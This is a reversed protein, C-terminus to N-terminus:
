QRPAAGAKPWEQKAARVDFPLRRLLPQPSHLTSASVSMCRPESHNHLATSESELTYLLQIALLRRPIFLWQVPALLYCTDNEIPM